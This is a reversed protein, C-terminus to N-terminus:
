RMCGGNGVRTDVGSRHWPRVIPQYRTAPGICSSDFSISSAVGYDRPGDAVGITTRSSGSVSSLAEPVNADGGDHSLGDREARV